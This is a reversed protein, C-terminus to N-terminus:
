SDQHDKTKWTTLLEEKSEQMAQTQKKEMKILLDLAEELPLASFTNKKDLDAIIIGKNQLNELSHIIQQKNIKLNDVISRAKKPGKLALFIYVRADTQSLGLRALAKFIRELSM